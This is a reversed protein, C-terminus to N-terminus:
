AILHKNVDMDEADKFFYATLLTTCLSNGESNEM